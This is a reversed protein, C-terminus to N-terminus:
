PLRVTATRPGVLYIRAVGHLLDPAVLLYHSRKRPIKMAGMMGTYFTGLYTGRLNQFNDPM